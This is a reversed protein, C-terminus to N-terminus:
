QLLLLQITKQNVHPVFWCFFLCFLVKSDEPIAVELEEDLNLFDLQGEIQTM